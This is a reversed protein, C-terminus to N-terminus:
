FTIQAGVTIMRLNPLQFTTSAEPDGEYKTFTAINQGQVYIRAAKMSLRSALVVPVQWSLSVNKLRLFSADVLDDSLRAQNYANRVPGSTQTFRQVSAQDGPARWRDLVGVLQNTFSGPVSNDYLPNQRDQIVAQIFFDLTLSGFSISNRVGGFVRPNLPKSTTRDGTFDNSVGNGNLDEYTYIGTQPDIGIMKYVKITSLSSGVTYVSAYSTGEIGPFALLQNRQFSANVGVSWQFKTRSVPLFSLDLETGTNQVEAPLNAIVSTFGTMAPLAYGVLQNSSRNKYWSASLQVRDRFFNLDIATEVKTNTEWAFDPNNFQTPMVGIAGQYPQTATYTDLYGFNGIQDSGTTGFSMRLKGFSVISLADKIFSEESFIWAAGIAGFNAFRNGPGFRSSGDRRATINILYKERYNYNLRVFASSYRYATYSSGSTRTPAATLNELLLDSTYGVGSMSQTRSISQQFTSGALATLTGSGIRRQFEVQPEVLWTESTSNGFSSAGIPATAPDQSKITVLRSEELGVDTYGLSTKLRLGPVIEYSLVTNGVLNTATGKYPQYIPQLPNSWTGNEWNLNGDEDYIAPANPPLFISQSPDTFPLNNLDNVYSGAFSLQFRNRTSRHNINVHASLKRDSFDGPFVTTQKLHGASIMFQTLDSGGSYSLQTNSMRATGGILEKQWDTYRNQDWTGNLDYATAGPTVGDNTFAERRMGLYQETNLLKRFVSVRGAGEYHNIDLKETGSKGKKTTILVVGNAGRSGYIATADADKLVEISQIDSPNIYNLPSSGPIISGGISPNILQTSTFPVGDVVFLPDNGDSRLSNRGRISIRFASGPVGSNQQVNVGPMRGILAELPNNVPQMAIEEASVRAINGTQERQKVEWYGANVVVEKLSSVDEELALDISSRSSVAVEVARYGIFSFVLVDNDNADIRYYGDADTSTGNTTGKVVVNVGAMPQGSVKDTVKGSITLLVSGAHDTISPEGTVSSQGQARANTLVVFNDTPRVTYRIKLPTLLESLVQGLKQQVVSVSVKEDLRLKNSSFVFKVEAHEGIKDLAERLSVEKLTLTIEVGLPDQRSEAQAMLPVVLFLGFVFNTFRRRM